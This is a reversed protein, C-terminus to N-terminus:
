QVRRPQGAVEASGLHTAFLMSLKKTEVDVKQKKEFESLGEESCGRGVAKRKPGLDEPNDMVMQESNSRCPLRTWTGKKHEKIPEIGDTRGAEISGKPIKKNQGSKMIKKKEAVEAWGVSFGVNGLEAQLSDSVLDSRGAEIGEVREVTDHVLISTLKEAGKEKIERIVEAVLTNSTQTNDVLEKDIEEIIAEFDAHKGHNKPTGSIESPESSQNGMGVDGGLKEVATELMGPGSSSREAGQTLQMLPRQRGGRTSQEVSASSAISEYGKVELVQRRALSFISAKIWHGYQQQEMSLNGNSKLWIECEKDDHSLMGCWFCINPLREYQFSVWGELDEEFNVKRGRCLPRSIDVLVRVRMFTGGHMESANQPIIVEGISEGIEIATEPNMFKYPLDHLQIWFKVRNFVVEKIPKKGDFRQLVVLHRDYSWPEGLLVKVADVELDFTFLLINDGVNTIHFSAKTHWLPRFTRAVAEINLARKTFFKAAIVCEKVQNKKSLVVKKGEM